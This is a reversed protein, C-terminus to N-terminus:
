ADTAQNEREDPFGQLFADRFATRARALAQKVAGKSKGNGAAMEGVSRGDVYRATLLARDHESLTALVLGVKAKMEAAELRDAPLAEATFRRALDASAQGNTEARGERRRAARIPNRALLCLWTFFEGRRVDFADIQDVATLLTEQVVEEAVAPSGGLRARAHAFLRDGYAEVLDRAATADGRRLRNILRQM